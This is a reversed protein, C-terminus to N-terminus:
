KIHDLQKPIDLRVAEQSLALAQADNSFSEASDRFINRSFQDLIIIEALRGEACVRWDFLENRKAAQYYDGFRKKIMADFALDKKWWQAPELEEFWFKLVEQYQFDM